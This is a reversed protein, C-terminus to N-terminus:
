PLEAFLERPTQTLVECGTSSVRVTDGLVIYGAGPHYTNPHVILTMDPELVLDVDELVHVGDVYLGVGHGRVRTYASTIYEALGHRRFVDNQACAIEGHTAGPKVAAIGAELAELYVAYADRQAQTPVGTVLTRCIQAYYGDICPTLETTVLDGPQIRREGPPHMGRVDVGGSALIIFNEACGQSRFWAEVEAVVEYERRGVQAAERFVAYGADALQTARAVADAESASKAVMLRDFWATAEKVGGGHLGHALTTSAVQPAVLAVRQGACRAALHTQVADAVRATWTVEAAPVEGAIRAAEQPHSVFVRKTGDRGILAIAHGEMPTVDIAYRLYDSRWADGPVVLVDVGADDMARRLRAERFAALAASM